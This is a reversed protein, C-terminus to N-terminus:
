DIGGHWSCTGPGTSTSIWGDNCVTGGSLGFFPQITSPTQGLTPPPIAGGAGSLARVLERLTEPGVYGDVAIGRSSQFARVAADTDPGFHGDVDLNTSSVTNLAMQIVAVERWATARFGANPRTTRRTSDALAPLQEIFRILDDPHHATAATSTTRSPAPASADDTPPPKPTALPGTPSPRVADRHTTDSNPACGALLSLSVAIVATSRWTPM